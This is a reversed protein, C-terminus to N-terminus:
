LTLIRFVIIGIIAILFVGTLALNFILLSTIKSLSHKFDNTADSLEKSADKSSQIIAERDKELAGVRRTYDAHVSNVLEKVETTLSGLQGVYDQSARTLENFSSVTRNVQEKAAEVDRLNKELESLTQNIKEDIM